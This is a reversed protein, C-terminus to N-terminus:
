DQSTVGHIAGGRKIPLGAWARPRGERIAFTGNVLVHVAGRSFQRPEQFTAPDLLRSRDLIAIDAYMGERLYGRDPLGFFDAALGTMSRIAFPM